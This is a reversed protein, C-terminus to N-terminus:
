LCLTRCRQCDQRNIQIKINGSILEQYRTGFYHWLGDYLICQTGPLSCSTELIIKPGAAIRKISLWINIVPFFTDDFSNCRSTKSDTEFTYHTIFDLMKRTVSIEKHSCDQTYLMNRAMADREIIEFVLTYFVKRTMWNRAFERSYFM